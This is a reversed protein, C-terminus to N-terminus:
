FSSGKKASKLAGQCIRTLLEPFEIGAALAAQPLLSTATMGPLSNAELCYAQGESDLRFDIRSYTSLKLAAHVRRAFAQLMAAQHQPIAAPFIERAGGVQYKSQYDFVDTEVIIEGVPLAEDDLIGVTFERGSIFKEIIVEDDYRHAKQLADEFAGASRVV